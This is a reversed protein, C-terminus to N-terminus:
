AKEVGAVLVDGTTALSTVVTSEGDAFVRGRHMHWRALIAKETVAVRCEGWRCEIMRIDGTIARRAVIAAIRCDPSNGLRGCM